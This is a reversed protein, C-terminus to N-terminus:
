DSDDDNNIEKKIEIISNHKKKNLCYTKFDIKSNNKWNLNYNYKHFKKFQECGIDSNLQTLDPAKYWYVKDSISKTSKNNIVMASFDNTLTSFVQKFADFSPFMGAYHDFLRKQNSGFDDALLFIYDFNSRLEPQIGLSYQMTLIYMIHYHRGNYLLKRLLTDNCWTKKDGLCDDMVIFSRDDFYKGQKNKEINLEIMKEQRILLKELIKSKYEYHIYSDSIFNKYFGNMRDTEAIVVGVPINKFFELLARVLWTKGSGRKAIIVISPNPCMDEFKFQKIPIKNGNTLEFDKTSM